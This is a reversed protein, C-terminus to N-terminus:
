ERPASGLRPLFRGARARYRQYTEGFRAELMTEERLTRARLVLALAGVM